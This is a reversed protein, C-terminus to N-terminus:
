PVKQPLQKTESHIIQEINTNPSFIEPTTKQKPTVPYQIITQLDQPCNIYNSHPMSPFGGVDPEWTVHEQRANITSEM